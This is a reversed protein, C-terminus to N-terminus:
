HMMSKQQAVPSSVKERPNEKRFEGLKVVAARRTAELCVTGQDLVVKGFEGAGDKGLALILDALGVRKRKPARIVSGDDSIV